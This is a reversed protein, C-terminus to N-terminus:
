YINLSFCYKKEDTRTYEKAILNGYITDPRNSNNVFHVEFTWQIRHAKDSEDQGNQTGTMTWKFGYKDFINWLRQSVEYPDLACKGRLKSGIMKDLMSKIESHSRGNLFHYKKEVEEYAATKLIIM